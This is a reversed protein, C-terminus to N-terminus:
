GGARSRKALARAAREKGITGSDDSRAPNERWRPDDDPWLARLAEGLDRLLGMIEYRDLDAGGDRTAIYITAPSSGSPANVGVAVKEQGREV